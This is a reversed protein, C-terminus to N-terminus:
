GEVKGYIGIQTGIPILAEKENLFYAVDSINKVFREGVLVGSTTTVGGFGASNYTGTVYLLRDAIICHCRQEVYGTSLKTTSFRFIPSTKNNFYYYAGGLELSGTSIPQYVARAIFEKCKALKPFEAITAIIGNVEETTTIDVIKEWNGGTNALAEAVAIGSQANESEPNYAQDIEPKAMNAIEEKDAETLVYDDGAPGQPGIPGADGRPGKKYPLNVWRTVGDGIKLWEGDAGDRVISVEGKELIPNYFLWNGLTDERYAFTSQLYIKKLM